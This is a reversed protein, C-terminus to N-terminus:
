EAVVTLTWWERGMIFGIVNALRKATRAVDVWATGAIGPISVLTKAGQTSHASPFSQAPAPWPARRVRPRHIVTGPATAMKPFVLFFPICTEDRRSSVWRFQSQSHAKASSMPM